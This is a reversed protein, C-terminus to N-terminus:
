PDVFDPICKCFRVFIESTEWRLVNMMNAVFCSSTFIEQGSVYILGSVRGYSPRFIWFPPPSPCTTNWGLGKSSSPKIKSRGFVSPPYTGIGWGWNKLGELAEKTQLVHWAINVYKSSLYIHLRASLPKGTFVYYTKKLLSYLNASVM